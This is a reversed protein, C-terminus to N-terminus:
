AFWSPLVLLIVLQYAQGIDTYTDVFESKKDRWRRKGGWIQQVADNYFLLM